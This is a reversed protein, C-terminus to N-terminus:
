ESFQYDPADTVYLEEFFPKMNEKTFIAKMATKYIIHDVIVNTKAYKCVHKLQDETLIDIKCFPYNNIIRQPVEFRISFLKLLAELQDKLEEVSYNIENNEIMEGLKNIIAKMDHKELKVGYAAMATPVSNITPLKSLGLYQAWGIRVANGDPTLYIIGFDPQKLKEVRM